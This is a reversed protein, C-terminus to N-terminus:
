IDENDKILLPSVREISKVKTETVVMRIDFCWIEAHGRYKRYSTMYDFSFGLQKLSTIEISDIGMKLLHSLIMHNKELSNIVRLKMVRSSRTRRNNYRNKCSDCCFKRDPRGYRIVDGCELCRVKRNGTDEGGPYGSVNGEEEM